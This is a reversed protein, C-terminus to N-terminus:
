TPNSTNNRYYQMPFKMYRPLWKSTKTEREGTLCDQIVQKQAKATSTLHADAKAKGAVEKIISNIASKDRLLGFFVEDASWYDSMDVNLNEGLTEVLESGSPLTEAVVFGLIKM